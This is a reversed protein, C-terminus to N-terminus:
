EVFATVVSAWYRLLVELTLRVREELAEQGEWGAMHITRLSHWDRTRDHFLVEVQHYGMPSPRVQWVLDPPAPDGIRDVMAQIRSVNPHDPPKPAPPPNTM